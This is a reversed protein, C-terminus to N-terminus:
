FHIRFALQVQRPTGLGVSSSVTSTMRGFTSSNGASFPQGPQIRNAQTTTEGAGPLSHFVAVPGFRYHM